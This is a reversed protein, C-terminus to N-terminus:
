DNRPYKVIKKCRLCYTEYQGNEDQGVSLRGSCDECREECHKRV